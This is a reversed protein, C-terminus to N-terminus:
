QKLPYYQVGNSSSVSEMLEFGAWELMVPQALPEALFSRAHRAVTIHPRYVHEEPPVGFEATAAQLRSALAALEPPVTASLLCAIKPRAWYDLRDFRLRFPEVEIAATAEQLAPIKQEPFQGVFVLTVHWNGRHVAQGEVNSVASKVPDRLAERQRESPWLAFFLRKDDM